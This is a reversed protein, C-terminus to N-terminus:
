SKKSCLKMGGKVMAWLLGVTIVAPLTTGFNITIYNTSYNTSSLPSENKEDTKDVNELSKEDM